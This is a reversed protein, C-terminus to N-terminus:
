ISPNSTVPFKELFLSFDFSTSESNQMVKAFSVQFLFKGLGIEFEVYKEAIFVLGSTFEDLIYGLEKIAELFEM